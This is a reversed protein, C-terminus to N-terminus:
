HTAICFCQTNYLLNGRAIDERTYQGPHDVTLLQAAVPTVSVVLGVAVLLAARLLM